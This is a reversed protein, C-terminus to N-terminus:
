KELINQPAKEFTLCKKNKFNENSGSYLSKKFEKALSKTNTTRYVSTVIDVHWLAALGTNGRSTTGCVMRFM